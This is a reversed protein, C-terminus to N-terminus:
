DIWLGYRESDQRWGWVHVWLPHKIPSWHILRLALCAAQNQERTFAERHSNGSTASEKLSLFIRSMEWKNFLSIGCHVGGFWLNGHFITKSGTMLPECRLYYPICNHKVLLPKSILSLQVCIKAKSNVLQTARSLHVERLILKGMLWIFIVGGVM